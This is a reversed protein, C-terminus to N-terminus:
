IETGDVNWYDDIRSELLLCMWLLIQPGSWKLTNLHWFDNRAESGDTMKDLPQSGDSEGRIDNKRGEGRETSGTNLHIKPFGSRRWVVKNYWKRNPIHKQLRKKQGLVQEEQHYSCLPLDALSGVLTRIATSGGTCLIFYPLHETLFHFFPTTLCPVNSTFSSRHRHLHSNKRFSM